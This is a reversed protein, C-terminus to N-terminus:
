AGAADFAALESEIQSLCADFEETTRLNLAPLTGIVGNKCSEIALRADSVLFMPAVILPLSLGHQLETPITM